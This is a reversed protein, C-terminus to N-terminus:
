FFNSPAAISTKGTSGRLVLPSRALGRRPPVEDPVAAVRMRLEDRMPGPDDQLLTARLERELREDNM